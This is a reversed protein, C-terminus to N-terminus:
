EPWRDKDVKRKTLEIAHNYDNLAADRDRKEANPWTAPVIPM